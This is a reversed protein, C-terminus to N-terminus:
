NTDAVNALAHAILEVQYALTAPGEAQVLMLGACALADLLDLADLAADPDNEEVLQALDHAYKRQAQVIAGLLRPDPNDPMPYQLTM